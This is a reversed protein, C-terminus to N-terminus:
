EERIAHILGIDSRVPNPYVEVSFGESTLHETLEMHRYKTWGDHLEVCIRRVKSLTSAETSFLIEFEAGECDMKLFDVSELGADAILSELTTTQVMIVLDSCGGKRLSAPVEATSHFSPEGGSLDMVTTGCAATLAVPWVAVNDVANLRINRQLLDVSPPFPEVALVKSAPFRRAVSIAFDGLGAGVDIVKFGDELSTRPHEYQQDVVTEKVIWLDMPSRTIFREGSKLEFTFEEKGPGLFATVVRLPDRASYLLNAVSTTYYLWKAGARWLAEM